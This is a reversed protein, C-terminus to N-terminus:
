IVWILFFISGIYSSSLDLEYANNNIRKIVQFHDDERPLIKSM